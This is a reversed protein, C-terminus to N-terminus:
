WINFVVKKIEVCREPTSNLLEVWADVLAGAGYDSPLRSILAEHDLVLPKPCVQDFYDKMVARPADGGEPFPGGALPGSEPRSLGVTLCEAGSKGAILASM